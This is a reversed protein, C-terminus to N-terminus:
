QRYSDKGGRLPMQKKCKSHNKKENEQTENDNKEYKERKKKFVRFKM